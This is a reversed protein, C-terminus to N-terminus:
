FPSILVFLPLYFRSSVFILLSKTVLQLLFSPPFTMSRQNLVLKVCNGSVEVIDGPVIERARIKQVGAKDSRIIKGMEPEYEKL